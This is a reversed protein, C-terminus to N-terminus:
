RGFCNSRCSYASGPDQNEVIDSVDDEDEDVLLEPMGDEKTGALINNNVYTVMQM